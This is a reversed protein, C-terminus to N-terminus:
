GLGISHRWKSGSKLGRSGAGVVRHYCPEGRIFSMRFPLEQWNREPALRSQSRVLKLNLYSPKQKTELDPVLETAWVSRWERKAQKGLGLMVPM